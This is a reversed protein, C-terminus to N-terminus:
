NVKNPRINKLMWEDAEEHTHFRYVGRPALKHGLASMLALSTRQMALGAELADVPPRRRGVTKGITEDINIVTKSGDMSSGMAGEQSFAVFVEQRWQTGRFEVLVM